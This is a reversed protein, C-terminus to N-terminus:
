LCGGGSCGCFAGSCCICGEGLYLTVKLLSKKKVPKKLM